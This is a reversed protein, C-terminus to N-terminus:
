HIGYNLLTAFSIFAALNGATWLVPFTQRISFGHKMTKLILYCKRSAVSEASSNRVFVYSTFNFILILMYRFRDTRGDM